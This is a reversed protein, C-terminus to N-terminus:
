SSAVGGEIAPDELIMPRMGVGDANALPDAVRRPRAQRRALLDRCVAVQEVAAACVTPPAAPDAAARAGVALWLQLQEESEHALDRRMRDSRGRMM